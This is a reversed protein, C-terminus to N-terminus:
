CIFQWHLQVQLLSAQCLKDIAVINYGYYCRVLLLLLTIFVDTIMKTFLLILISDAYLHIYPRQISLIAWTITM